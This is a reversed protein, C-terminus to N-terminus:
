LCQVSIPILSGWKFLQLVYKINCSPMHALAEYSFFFVLPQSLRYDHRRLVKYDRRFIACRYDRRYDITEELKACRCDEQNLSQCCNTSSRGCPGIGLTHAHLDWVYLMLLFKIILLCRRRKFISHWRLSQVQFSFKLKLRWPNWLSKFPWRFFVPQQFHLFCVNSDACATSDGRPLGPMAEQGDDYHLNILIQHLLMAKLVSPLTRADM